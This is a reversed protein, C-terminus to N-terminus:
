RPSHCWISGALVRFVADLTLSPCFVTADAADGIASEWLVICTADVLGIAGTNLGPLICRVM